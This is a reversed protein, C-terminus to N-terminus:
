YASPKYYLFDSMGDSTATLPLKYIVLVQNRTSTFAPNVPLFPVTTTDNVLASHNQNALWVLFM